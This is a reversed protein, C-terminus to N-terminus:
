AQQAPLVAPDLEGFLFCFPFIYISFFTVFWPSQKKHIFTRSAAVDMWTLDGLQLCPSQAAKIFREYNSNVNLLNWAQWFHASFFGPVKFPVQSSPIHFMLKYTSIRPALEQKNGRPFASINTGSLSPITTCFLKLLCAVVYWCRWDKVM